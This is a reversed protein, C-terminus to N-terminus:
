CQQSFTFYRVKKITHNNNKNEAHLMVTIQFLFSSKHLGRSVQNAINQCAQSLLKQEYMVTRKILWLDIMCTYGLINGGEKSALLKNEYELCEMIQGM